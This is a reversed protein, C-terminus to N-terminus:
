LNDRTMQGLHKHSPAILLRKANLSQINNQHFDHL